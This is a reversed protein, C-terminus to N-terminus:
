VAPYVIVYFVMNTSNFHFTTGGYLGIWLDFSNAGTMVPYNTTPTQGVAGYPLVYYHDFVKQGTTITKGYVKDDSQRLVNIQGYNGTGVSSSAQTGNTAGGAIMAFALIQYPYGPDAVTLTAARFGKIAVATVERSGSLFTTDVNKFVPKRITQLGAPIQASPIYGDSGVSAVGNAAGRESTPVYNADATDAAAKKALGADAADTYAPTVLSTTVAAIESNVYANDVKVQGYRTDVWTKNTVSADSDPPRGVYKLGM